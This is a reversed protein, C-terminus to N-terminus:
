TKTEAWKTTVDADTDEISLIAFSSVRDYAIYDIIDIRDDYLVASYGGGPKAQGFLFRNIQSQLDEEGSLVCSLIRGQDNKVTLTKNM